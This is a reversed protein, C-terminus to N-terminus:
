NYAIVMYIHVLAMAATLGALIVHWKVFRQMGEPTGLRTGLLASGLLCLPLVALLGYGFVPSHAWVALPMVVGIAHHVTVWRDWALGKREFVARGLTLAWQGLILGAVVCGSAARYTPDYQFDLGKWGTATGASLALLAAWTNLAIIRNM